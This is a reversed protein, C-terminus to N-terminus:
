SASISLLWDRCPGSYLQERPHLGQSDIEYAVYGLSQLAPVSRIADVFDPLVEILLDPCHSALLPQLATLLEAEFGEVDIKILLRAHAPVLETLRNADIVIVPRFKVEESFQRAFSEILSGNTLHAEPEAFRAFGSSVGVAANFTHLDNLGNARLNERLRDYAAPAPEFVHLTKNQLGEMNKAFYLTFVGVNAGIEIVSDYLNLRQDLMAFVEKEYALHGGLVAAFDFEGLHPHLRVCTSAGLRVEVPRLVAEPWPASKLVNLLRARGHDTLHEVICPLFALYLRRFGPLRAIVQHWFLFFNRVISIMQRYLVIIRLTSNELNLSRFIETM